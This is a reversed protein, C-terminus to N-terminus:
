KYATPDASMERIMEEWTQTTFGTAKRFKTSDLSRDIYFNPSPEIEVEIEFAKKLLNLLDFKNIPESSLHYLGELNKHDIILGAVINALVITPFGSFVANVYGAIKGNRNSLFWEVLSNRTLLERGIISTRLTLCNESVIEGFNKSRGYLDLADPVDTETYNGKVGSFVCDTGLTILRSNYKGTLDALRHPLISNLQLTPVVNKAAPLQKIVGVCNVVVDPKIDKVIKEVSDLNEVNINDFTRKKDFINFEAYDGASKRITTWVEFHKRLIQVFKHGAMGGGGIILIKM